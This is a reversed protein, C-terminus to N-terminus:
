RRAWPPGDSPVQVYNAVYLDLDLDGDLDFFVAGTSWRPDGVGAVETVAEFTGDGRNRYLRNPGYNTVYLDPWGDGDYDAITCGQGFSSHFRPLEPMTM